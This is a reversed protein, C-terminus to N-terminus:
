PTSRTHPNSSPFVFPRASGGQRPKFFRAASIRVEFISLRVSPMHETLFIIGLRQTTSRTPSVRELAASASM